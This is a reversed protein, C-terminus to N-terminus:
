VKPPQKRPGFIAGKQFFPHLLSDESGPLTGTLIELCGTLVFFGGCIIGIALLPAVFCLFIGETFTPEM